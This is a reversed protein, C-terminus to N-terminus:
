LLSKKITSKREGMVPPVESCWHLPSIFHFSDARTMIDAEQPLFIWKKTHKHFSIESIVGVLSKVQYVHMHKQTASNQREEM